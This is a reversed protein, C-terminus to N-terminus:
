LNKKKWFIVKDIVSSSKQSSSSQTSTAQAEKSPQVQPTERLEIIINQLEQQVVKISAPREEEGLALMQTILRVLSEPLNSVRSKLQPLSFPAHAPGYGSLLHYLTAGLSYIDSRTTSPSGSYQEPPAYGRSGYGAVDQIQGPTLHRALGFDILYFQGHFTRMVNGPKLDRFIIPPRHTHLYDLVRCLVQAIQLTEEVSLRKNPAHSLYADLTEGEVFSMVLYLRGNEEFYDYIHPLNPHQLGALIHAERKFNEIANLVQQPSLNSQSMEKIAILRNNRLTDRAKYVAGMGGKGVIKMLVYRKNMLSNPALQGTPTLPAPTIPNVVPVQISLKTGCVSCFLEGISSQKGCNRCFITSSAM